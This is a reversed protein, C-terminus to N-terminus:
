SSKKLSRAEKELEKFREVDIKLHTDKAILEIEEPFDM